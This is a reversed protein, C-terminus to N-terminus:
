AYLVDTRLVHKTGRTVARGAHLVAHQFWLASGTRPVIVQAQEPFETEGGEFADDLYVLLTLLSRANGRTYSQDSHLGFHHGVEYRYVRLPEFLGQAHAIRRPGDWGTAMSAPIHPAIKTWLTSAVRPDEVLAVVNNRITKDVERGSSRNVTGQLWEAHQLSALVEACEDPSYLAPVQHLLPASFDFHDVHM